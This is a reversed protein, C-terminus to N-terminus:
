SVERYCLLRQEYRPVLDPFQRMWIKRLESHARSNHIRKGIHFHHIDKGMSRKFSFLSDDPSTTRGGGLHLCSLDHERGMTAAYHILQNVAGPMNIDPDSASLHYHLYAPGKLFIAAAGWKGDQEAVLLSGAKQVLEKLGSFYSDSFAYYPDAKLRAMSRLYMSIFQDFDASTSRRTTTIGLKQARRLMNRTKSNYSLLDGDFAHLNISVTERDRLLEVQPSLWCENKLLPHLRVFEAVVHNDNCWETFAQHAEDLFSSSNSNCLPGGYGYPTEIDCWGEEVSHTGVHLIPRLLFPYLWIHAGRSYTFLLARDSYEGKQLVVYDPWFYVDRLSQPLLDLAGHWQEAEETADYIQTHGHM